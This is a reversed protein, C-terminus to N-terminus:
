IADAANRYWEMGSDFDLDLGLGLSLERKDTGVGETQKVILSAWLNGLLGLSDWGMSLSAFGTCWVGLGDCCSWLVVVSVLKCFVCVRAQFVCWVETCVHTEFVVFGAAIYRVRRCAGWISM